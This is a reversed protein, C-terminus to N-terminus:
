KKIMETHLQDAMNVMVDLWFKDMGNYNVLNNKYAPLNLFCLSYLLGPSNKDTWHSIISAQNLNIPTLESVMLDIQFPDIDVPLARVALNRTFKNLLQAMQRRAATDASARLLLDSQLGEAQGVAHFVQGNETFFVGSGLKFWHDTMGPKVAPSTSPRMIGPLWTCGLVTFLYVSTLFCFFLKLSSYRQM